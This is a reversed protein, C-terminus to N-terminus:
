YVQRGIRGNRSKQSCYKISCPLTTRTAPNGPSLLDDSAIKTATKQIIKRLSTMSDGASLTGNGTSTETNREHLQATILFRKNIFEAQEENVCM